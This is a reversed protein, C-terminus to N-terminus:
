RTTCLASVMVTFMSLVELHLLHLRIILKAHAPEERAKSTGLEQLDCEGRNLIRFHIPRQYTDIKIARYSVCGGEFLFPDLLM